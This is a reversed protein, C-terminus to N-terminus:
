LNRLLTHRNIERLSKNKFISIVLSIKKEYRRVSKVVRNKPWTFMFCNSNILSQFLLQFGVVFARDGCLFWCCIKEADDYVGSEIGKDISSSGTFLISIIALSDGQEDDFM